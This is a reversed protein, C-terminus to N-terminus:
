TTELRDVLGEVSEPSASSRTPSGSPPGAKGFVTQEVTEFYRGVAEALERDVGQGALFDVVQAGFCRGPEADFRAALYRSLLRAEALLDDSSSERLRALARRFEPLADEQLLPRGARDNGSRKFRSVFLIVLLILLAAGAAYFPWRSRSTEQGDGQKPDVLEKGEEHPRVRLPIPATRAQHFAEDEPDFWAFEFPPIRDVDATKPAIELRAVREGTGRAFERNFLLFGEVEDFSGFESFELFDINTRGARLERVTLTVSVTGGVTVADRDCVATFEFDGVADRYAAPRGERPVPRVDVSRPAAVASAVGDLDVEFRSGALSLEGAEPALVTVEGTLVEYYLGHRQIRDPQERLLLSRHAGELEFRQESRQLEGEESVAVVRDWWPFQFRANISTLSRAVRTDLELRISVQFPERAHVRSPAPELSLVCAAAQVDPDVARLFVPNALVAMDSQCLVSLGRIDHEGVALARVGVEYSAITQDGGPEGASRSRVSFHPGSLERFALGAIEPFPMLEADAACEGFIEIVLRAEQGVSITDQELRATVYTREAAGQWLAPVGSLAALTWGAAPLM